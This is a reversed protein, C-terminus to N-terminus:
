LINLPYNKFAKNALIIENAALAALREAELEGYKRVSFQKTKSCKENHVYAKYCKGDKKSNLIFVYHYKSTKGLKKGTNHFSKKRLGTKLAHKTNYSPTCWELNYVNNNLKNGDIHNVQPFNHPNNIFTEAVIRHLILLHKKGNKDRLGVKYYGNGGLWPKIFKNTLLSYVKGESTVKYRGEFGKINRM